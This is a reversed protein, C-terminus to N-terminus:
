HVTQFVFSNVIVVITVVVGRRLFRGVESKSYDQRVRDSQSLTKCFHQQSLLFDSSTKNEWRM